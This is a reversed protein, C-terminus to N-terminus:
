KHLLFTLPVHLRAQWAAENHAAGEYKRSLHNRADYGSAQLLADVRRQHIEYLADLTATGYDFYLLPRQRRPLKKALYALMADTFDSPNTDGKSLPWHTSLCAAGGFVKPYELAAYLSILGGMSSGAVWTHARGPATRYHADIYPKLETVLFKLYEDSLPEVVKGGKRAAQSAAPMARFPAAPVYEWFRLPSNWIGVVITPRVAGETQLRTLTADVEWAVGTTLCLAPDFLNQGDHMYLVDYTGTGADYGDPLWIDVNRAQVHKSAFDPLRVVRGPGTPVAQATASLSAITALLLLFYNMRCLFPQSRWAGVGVLYKANPERAPAPM